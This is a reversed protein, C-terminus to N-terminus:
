RDVKWCSKWTPHGLGGYRYHRPYNRHIAAWLIDAFVISNRRNSTQVVASAQYVVQAQGYELEYNNCVHSHAHVFRIQAAFRRGMMIAIGLDWEKAALVATM